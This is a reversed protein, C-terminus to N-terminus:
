TAECTLFKSSVEHLVTQLVGYMLIYFYQSKFFLFSFQTLKIQSLNLKSNLQKM